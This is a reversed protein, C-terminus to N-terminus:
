TPRNQNDFILCQNGILQFEFKHIATCNWHPRGRGNGDGHFQSLRFLYVGCNQVDIQIAPVDIWEGVLKPRTPNWKHKVCAVARQNIKFISIRADRHTDFWATRVVNQSTEGADHSARLLALCWFRRPEAM